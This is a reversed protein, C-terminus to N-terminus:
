RPRVASNGASRLSEHDFMSLESVSVDFRTTLLDFSYLVEHPRQSTLRSRLVQEMESDDLSLSVGELRRHRLAEPLARRYGRDVWSSVFKWGILLALTLLALPLPGGGVSAALLVLLGTAAGSAIPGVVGDIVM